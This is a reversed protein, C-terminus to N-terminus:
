RAAAAASADVLQRKFMAFIREWALESATQNYVRRGPFAFGHETGPHTESFQEVGCANLLKTFAEVEEQPLGHDHEAYAAYVEGQLKPLFRHASDDEDTILRGAFLSATARIREPFSGAVPWVFRGGMCYGICGMPAKVAAPDGDIHGIVARSDAIVNQITVSRGAIGRIAMVDDLRNDPDIVIKGLRYYLDPVAVYYGEAAARRAMGRLTESLGGVNQYM